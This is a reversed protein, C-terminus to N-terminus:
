GALTAFVVVNDEYDGDSFEGGCTILRLERDNTAYVEVTPFDDRSYSALRDVRFTAASGDAREVVLEAGPKLSSLHYFVAPGRRSDVHGAIVAAGTDGPRPGEQFWGARDYEQPAEIQGSATLGLPVLPSDIQLAPVALRVPPATEVRQVPPQEAPLDQGATRESPHVAPPLTEQAPVPAAQAPEAAAGAPASSALPVPPPPGVQSAVAVGIFSAGTLLLATAAM